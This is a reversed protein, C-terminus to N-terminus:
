RFGKNMDKELSRNYYSIILTVLWYIIGVALFNELFRYSAAASIKAQGMMEKVGLTFTIATGQILSIMTNGLPPIAIRAAQPLIIRIMAQAKTMGVSMAADMQGKDVADIAARITESMYASANISMVFVSAYIATISALSPFIQPLGYFFIFLQVLLPTGRFFSVYTNILLNLPKVEFRRLLTLTTGIILGLLFSTFALTLTLPLFRGIVAFRSFFYEFEFNINM